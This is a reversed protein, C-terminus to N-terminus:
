RFKRRAEELEGKMTTFCALLQRLRREDCSGSSLIKTGSSIYMTRRTALVFTWLTDTHPIKAPDFTTDGPYLKRYRNYDANYERNRIKVPEGKMLYFEQSHYGAEAGYTASLFVLEGNLYYGTLGGGCFSMDPLLYKELKGATLLSDISAVRKGTEFVSPQAYVFAGAFLLLSLVFWRM